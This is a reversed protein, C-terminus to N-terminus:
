LSLSKRRPLVVPQNVSFLYIKSCGSICTSTGDLPQSSQTRPVPKAGMVQVNWALSLALM